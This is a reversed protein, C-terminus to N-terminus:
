SPSFGKGKPVSPSHLRVASRPVHMARSKDPRKAGPSKKTHKKRGIASDPDGCINIRGIASDILASGRVRCCSQGGESCSQSAPFVAGPKRDHMTPSISGHGREIRGYDQVGKWSSPRRSILGTIWDLPLFVVTSGTLWDVM